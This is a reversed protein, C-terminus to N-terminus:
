ASSGPANEDSPAAQAASRRQLPAIWERWEPRIAEAIESRELFKLHGEVAEDRGNTAELLALRLHAEARRGPSISVAPQAAVSEWRDRAQDPAHTEAFYRGELMWLDLLFPSPPLLHLLEVITRARRLTAAVRGDASQDLQLSGLALQHTLEVPLNRLRETSPIAKERGRRAGEPDGRRERLALLGEEAELQFGARHARGLVRDASTFFREALQLEAADGNLLSRGVALMALAHAPGAPITKALAAARRAETRGKAIRGRDLDYLALVSQLLIEAATAGAGHCREALEVLETALTPRPGVSELVPVVGEIWDELRERGNSTALAATIGERLALEAEGLRGSYALARFELLRIEAEAELREAAALSPVCARARELADCATDFAHLRETLEATELLYRLANPGKYWEFYHHSLELRRELSPEPNMAALAEAIERHMEARDAASFLEPVQHVYVAHPLVVKGEEIKVLGAETAPLLADALQPFTLRAVRSLTVDRISGGVMATYALIRQCPLPLAELEDRARRVDRPDDRASTLRVWDVDVHGVLPEEWSRFAAVSSDLSLVLGIPRLRARESLYLLVERSEPDAYVAEDVAVLVPAASSGRTERVLRGWFEEPEVRAAGRPRQPGGLIAAAASSRGREGRRRSMPMADTDVPVFAVSTPTSEPDEPAEAQAELTPRDLTELMAFSQDRTRYEGRLNHVTGGLQVVAQRIEELLEGKGSMPPGAVVLTRGSGAALGELLRRAASPIPM